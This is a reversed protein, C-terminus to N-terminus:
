LLVCVLGRNKLSLQFLVSVEHYKFILENNKENLLFCDILFNNEITSNGDFVLSEDFELTNLRFAISDGPKAYLMQKESGHKFFYISEDDQIFEFNFFGNESLEFSDVIKGNKSLVIHNDLPNVIEGHLKITNPFHADTTCSFIFGILIAVSLFKM